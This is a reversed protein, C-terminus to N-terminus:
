IEEMYSNIDSFTDISKTFKIFTEVCSLLTNSNRTIEYGVTLGGSSVWHGPHQATLDTVRISDILEYLSSTIMSETPLDNGHWTWDLQKYLPAVEAAFPIVKEKLEKKIIEVNLKKM